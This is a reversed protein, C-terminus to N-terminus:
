EAVTTEVIRTAGMRNKEQQVFVNSGLLTFRILPFVKITNTSKNM